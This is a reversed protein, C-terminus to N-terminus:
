VLSRSELAQRRFCDTLIKSKSRQDWMRSPAAVGSEGAGDDHYNRFNRARVFRRPAALEQRFRSKAMRKFWRITWTFRRNRWQYQAPPLM